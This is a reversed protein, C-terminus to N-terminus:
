PVYVFHVKYEFSDGKEFVNVHLVLDSQGEEVSFLDVLVKWYEYQWQCVSTKWSDDPLAALTCGYASINRAIGVSTDEDLPEVCELDRLNFNGTKFADVIERLKPRWASPVPHEQVEDKLIPLTVSM